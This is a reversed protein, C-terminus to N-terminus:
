RSSFGFEEMHEVQYRTFQHDTNHGTLVLIIEPGTQAQPNNGTIKKVTKKKKEEGVEPLKRMPM